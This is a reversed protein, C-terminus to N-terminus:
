LSPNYSLMDSILHTSAIQLWCELLSLVLVYWAEIQEEFDLVADEMSSEHARSADSHYLNSLIRSKLRMLAIEALYFYWALEEKTKVSEPPSPFFTPYTLDWVDKQSPNLELRLERHTACSTLLVRRKRPAPNAPQQADM